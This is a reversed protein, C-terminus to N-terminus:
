MLPNASKPFLGCRRCTIAIFLFLLMFIYSYEVGQHKLNVSLDAQLNVTVENSHVYNMTCYWAMGDMLHTCQSFQKLVYLAPLWQMLKAQLKSESITPAGMKKWYVVKEEVKQCITFFHVFLWHPFNFFKWKKRDWLM